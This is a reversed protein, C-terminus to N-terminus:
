DCSTVAGRSTRTSLQRPLHDRRRALEARTRHFLQRANKTGAGVNRGASNFHESTMKTGTKKMEYGSVYYTLM